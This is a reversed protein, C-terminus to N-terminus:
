LDRPLTNIKNCNAIFVNNCIAGFPKNEEGAESIQILNYLFFALFIANEKAFPWRSCERLFVLEKKKKKPSAFM